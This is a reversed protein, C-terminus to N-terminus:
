ALVSSYRLALFEKNTFLEKGTQEYLQNLGQSLEELLVPYKEKVKNWFVNYMKVNQVYYLVAFLHTAFLYYFIQPRIKEVQ